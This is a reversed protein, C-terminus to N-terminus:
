SLGRGRGRRLRPAYYLRGGCKRAQCLRSEHVTWVWTSLSMYPIVSLGLFPWLQLARLWGRM